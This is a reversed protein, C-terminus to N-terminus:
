TLPKVVGAPQTPGSTEGPKHDNLFLGFAEYLAEPAKGQNEVVFRGAVQQLYLAKLVDPLRARPAAPFPVEGQKLLWFIAGAAGALIIFALALLLPLPSWLAAGFAFAVALAAIAFPAALQWAPMTPITRDVSWYDHFPMTTEVQCRLIYSAFDAANQVQEFGHCHGFIDKLEPMDAWIAELYARPEDRSLDPDFDAVFVLWPCTLQDVPGPTAVNAKAITGVITDVPPRGNFNVDDIIFFRAFHTRTNRSFPSNQRPAETEPTQLATPLLQLTERLAHVPSTLFGSADIIGTNNVPALATLFYQGSDFNPM